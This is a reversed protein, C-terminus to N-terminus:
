WPNLNEDEVSEGRPSAVSMAPESPIKPKIAVSGVANGNGAAAEVPVSSLSSTCAAVIDSYKRADTESDSPSTESQVAPPKVVKGNKRARLSYGSQTTSAM